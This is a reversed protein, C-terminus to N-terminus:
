KRGEYEKTVERTGGEKLQYILTYITKTEGSETIVKRKITMGEADDPLKKLEDPMTNKLEDNTKPEPGVNDPLKGDADKEVYDKAFTIVAITKYIKHKACAVGFKGFEPNLITKRDGRTKVGDDIMWQLVFDLGNVPIVGIIEGVKGIWKGYMDMREGMRSDEKGSHGTKGTEGNYNALDQAAKDLGPMRTMEQKPRMNELSALCEEPADKGEASQFLVGSQDFNKGEYTDLRAQVHTMFSQPNKRIENIYKAIQDACTVPDFENEM